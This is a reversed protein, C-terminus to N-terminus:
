FPTYKVNWSFSIDCDCSSRLMVLFFKEADSLLLFSSFVFAQIFFVSCFIWPVWFFDVVFNNPQELVVCYSMTGSLLSALGKLVQLGLRQAQVCGTLGNNMHSFLLLMADTGASLVWGDPGRGLYVMPVDIGLCCLVYVSLDLVSFEHYFSLYQASFHTLHM